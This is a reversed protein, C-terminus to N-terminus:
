KEGGKKEMQGPDVTKWEWRRADTKIALRWATESGPALAFCLLYHRPGDLKAAAEPHETDPSGTTAPSGDSKYIAGGTYKHGDVRVADIRALPTGLWDGGPAQRQLEVEKPGFALLERDSEVVLSIAELGRYARDRGALDAEAEKDRFVRRVSLGKDSAEELKPPEAQSAALAREVFADNAKKREASAPDSGGGLAAGFGFWVGFMVFLVMATALTGGRPLEFLGEIVLQAGKAAIALGVIAGLVRIPILFYALGFPIILLTLLGSAVLCRPYSASGREDLVHHMTLWLALSNIFVVLAACLLAGFLGFLEFLDLPESM